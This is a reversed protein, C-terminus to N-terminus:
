PGLFEGDHKIIEGRERKERANRGLWLNIVRQKLEARSQVESCGFLQGYSLLFRLVIGALSEKDKFYPM